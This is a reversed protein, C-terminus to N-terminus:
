SSPWKELGPNSTTKYLLKISIVGGHGDFIGMLSSYYKTCEYTTIVVTMSLNLTKSDSLFHCIMYSDDDVRYAMM